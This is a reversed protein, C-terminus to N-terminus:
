ASRSPAGAVLRRGRWWVSACLIGSSVASAAAVGFLGHRRVMITAVALNFVLAVLYWLALEGTRRALHYYTSLFRYFGLLFSSSVLAAFTADDLVYSANAVIRVLWPQTLLFVAGTVLGCAAYVALYRELMRRAQAAGREEWARFVRPHIYTMLPEYLAQLGLTAIVYGIVYRAVAETGLGALGIVYRNLSGYLEGLVMVGVVPAGFALMDGVRAGPPPALLRGWRRLHPWALPALVALTAVSTGLLYGEIPRARWLWVVLTVGALIILREVIVVLNYVLHQEQVRLLAKVQASVQGLLISSALLAAILRGPRYGDLGPDIAVALAFVVVSVVGTACLAVALGRWFLDNGDRAYFRVLYQPTGMGGLIVCWSIVPIVLQLSGYASQSLLSTLVRTQLLGLVPLAAFSAYYYVGPVAHKLVGARAATFTTM